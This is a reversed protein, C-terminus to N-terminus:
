VPPRRGGLADAVARLARTVAPLDPKDIPDIVYERVSALHTPWAKQLTRFGKPTLTAWIRRADDPCPERSVIGAAELRDIRYTCRSKSMLVQDALESMLIRRCPAASLWVLIEYDDLTLEHAALARNLRDHALTAAQLFAIWAKTEGDDLPRPKPTTM